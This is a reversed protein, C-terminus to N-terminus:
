VSTGGLSPEAIATVEGTASMFPVTAALGADSVPTEEAVESVSNEAASQFSALGETV